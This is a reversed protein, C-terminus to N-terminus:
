NSFFDKQGLADNAKIAVDIDYKVSSRHVADAVDYKKQENVFLENWAPIYIDKIQANNIKGANEFQAASGIFKTQSFDIGLWTIPKSSDFIDAKTAQAFLSQASVGVFLLTIIWKFKAIPKM